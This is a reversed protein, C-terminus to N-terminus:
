AASAERQFGNPDTFAAGRRTTASPTYGTEKSKRRTALFVLSAVLSLFVAAGALGVWMVLDSSSVPKTSVHHATVPATPVALVQASQTVAVKSTLTPTTAVTAHTASTAVVHATNPAVQPPTVLGLVIAPMWHLFAAGAVGSLTPMPSCKAVGIAGGMLLMTTALGVGLPGAAWDALTKYYDYAANADAVHGSAAFSLVPLGLMSILFLVKKVFCV